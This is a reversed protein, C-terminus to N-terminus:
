SYNELLYQQMQYWLEVKRQDTNPHRLPFLGGSGNPGYTRHVLRSLIAPNLDVNKKLELNSMMIWFAKPIDIDEGAEVINFAFRKALAIVMELVSCPRSAERRDLRTKTEREYDNRLDLGDNCRNEDHPVLTEFRTFFMQNLALEYGTGNGEVLEILWDFYTISGAHDNLNM